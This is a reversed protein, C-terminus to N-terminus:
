RLFPAHRISGISHKGFVYQSPEPRFYFNGISAPQPTGADIVVAISAEPKIIRSSFFSCVPQRPNDIASWDWFTHTNAVPTVVRRAHVRIMQKKTIMVAVHLIHGGFSTCARCLKCFFLYVAQAFLYASVLRVPKRLAKGILKSNMAAGNTARSFSDRELVYLDGFSRRTLAKGAVM